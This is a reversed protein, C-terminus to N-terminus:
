NANPEKKTKNRFQEPKPILDKKWPHTAPPTHASAPNYNIRRGCAAFIHRQRDLREQANLRYDAHADCLPLAFGGGYHKWHTAPTKCPHEGSIGFKCVVRNHPKPIWSWDCMGCRVSDGGAVPDNGVQRLVQKCNPCTLKM